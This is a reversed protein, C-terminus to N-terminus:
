RRLPTGSFLLPSVVFSRASTPYSLRARTSSLNCLAPPLALIINLFLKEVAAKQVNPSDTATLQYVVTYIDRAPDEMAKRPSLSAHLNCTLHPSPDHTPRSTM